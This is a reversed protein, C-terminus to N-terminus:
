ARARMQHQEMIEAWNEATLKPPEEGEKFGVKRFSEAIEPEPFIFLSRTAQRSHRVASSSNKPGLAIRHPRSCFTADAM